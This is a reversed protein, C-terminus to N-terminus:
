KPAEKEKEDPIPAFPGINGPKEGIVFESSAKAIVDRRGVRGSQDKSEYVYIEVRYKGYPMYRPLTILGSTEAVGGGPVVWYPMGHLVEHIKRGNEAFIAWGTDFARDDSYVRQEIEFDVWYVEETMWEAKGVKVKTYDDRRRKKESVLEAKTKPRTTWREGFKRRAPHEPARSNFFTPVKSAVVLDLSGQGRAASPLVFANPNPNANQGISSRSPSQCLLAAAMLFFTQFRM